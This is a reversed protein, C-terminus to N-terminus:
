VRVDVGRDSELAGTIEAVTLEVGPRAEIVFAKSWAQEPAFARPPFSRRVFRMTHSGCRVFPFFILAVTTLPVPIPYSPGGVNQSETRLEEERAGAPRWLALADQSAAFNTAARPGLHLRALEDYAEAAGSETTHLGGDYVHGNLELVARWRGAQWWPSCSCLTCALHPPLVSASSVEAVVGVYVSAAVVAPVRRPRGPSRPRPASASAGATRFSADAARACSAATLPRRLLARASVAPMALACRVPLTVGRRLSM